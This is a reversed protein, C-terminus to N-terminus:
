LKYCTSRGVNPILKPDFGSKSIAASIKALVAADAYNNVSSRLAVVVRDGAAGVCNHWIAYNIYDTDILRISLQNSIKSEPLSSSQLTSPTSTATGNQYLFTSTM